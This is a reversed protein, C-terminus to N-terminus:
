TQKTESICASRENRIGDRVHRSENFHVLANGQNTMLNMM